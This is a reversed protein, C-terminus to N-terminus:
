HIYLHYLHRLEITLNIEVYECIMLFFIQIIFINIFPDVLTHLPFFIENNERVGCIERLIVGGYLM